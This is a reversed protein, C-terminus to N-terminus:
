KPSPRAPAPAPVSVPNPLLRSPRTELTAVPLIPMMPNGPERAPQHHNDRSSSDLPPPPLPLPILSPKPPTTHRQLSSCCAPAVVLAAPRSVSSRRQGTGLAWARPPLPSKRQIPRIPRASIDGVKVYQVGGASKGKQSAGVAGRWKDRATAWCQLAIGSWACKGTKAHPMLLPIHMDQRSSQVSLVVSSLSVLRAAPVPCVPLPPSFHVYGPSETTIIPKLGEKKRKKNIASNGNSNAAPSAGAAPAPAPAAPQASADKASDSGNM